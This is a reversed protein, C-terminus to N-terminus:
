LELVPAWSSDGTGFRLEVDVFIPEECRVKRLPQAELPSGRCVGQHRMAGGARGVAATFGRERGTQQSGAARGPPSERLRRLGPPAESRKAEQPEASGVGTSAPLEWLRRHCEPTQRQATAEAAPAESAEAPFPPPQASFSAPWLDDEFIDEPGSWLPGQPGFGEFDLGPPGGVGQPGFGQADWGQPGGRAPRAQSRPPGKGTSTGSGSPRSRGTSTLMASMLDMASPETGDDWLEEGENSQKVIKRNMDITVPGAPHRIPGESADVAAHEEQPKFTRAALRLLPNESQDLADERRERLGRSIEPACGKSLALLEMLSFSRSSTSSAAAEEAAPEDAQAAQTVPARDLAGLLSSLPPVAADPPNMQPRGPPVQQLERRPHVASVVPLGDAGDDEDVGECRDKETRALLAHTFSAM